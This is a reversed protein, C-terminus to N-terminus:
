LKKGDKDLAYNERIDIDMLRAGAKMDSRKKADPMYLINNFRGTDTEYKYFAFEHMNENNIKVGQGSQVVLAGPLEPSFYVTLLNTNSSEIYNNSPRVIGYYKGPIIFCVNNYTKWVTICDGNDLCFFRRSEGYWILIPILLLSSFLFIKKM